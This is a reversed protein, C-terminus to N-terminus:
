IRKNKCWNINKDLSTMNGYLFNNCSNVQTVMVADNEYYFRFSIGYLSSYFFHLITIFVYFLICIMLWCLTTNISIFYYSVSYYNEKAEYKGTHM